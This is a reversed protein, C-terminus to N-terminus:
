TKRLAPGPLQLSLEAEAFCLFAGRGPIAEGPPVPDLLGQELFFHSKLHTGPSMLRRLRSPSAFRQSGAMTQM